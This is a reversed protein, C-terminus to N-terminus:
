WISFYVLVKNKNILLLRLTLAKKLQKKQFRGDNNQQKNELDISYNDAPVERMKRHIGIVLGKQQIVWKRYEQNLNLIKNTM